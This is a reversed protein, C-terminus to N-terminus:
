HLHFLIQVFCPFMRQHAIVFIHTMISPRHDTPVFSIQSLLFFPVNAYVRMKFYLWLIQTKVFIIMFINQLGHATLVFSIPLLSICPFPCERMGDNEHIIMPKSYECSFKESIEKSTRYLMKLLVWNISNNLYWYKEEFCLPRLLLKSSWDGFYHVIIDVIEPKFGQILLVKLYSFIATFAAIHLIIVDHCPFASPTVPLINRSMAFFMSVHYRWLGVVQWVQKSRQGAIPLSNPSLTHM